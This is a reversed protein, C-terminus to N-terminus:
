EILPVIGNAGALWAGDIVLAETYNATAGFEPWGDGDLDGIMAFATGFGDFAGSADNPGDTGELILRVDSLDLADLDVYGDCDQDLGDNPIEDAEPHITSDEDNCDTSEPFSDQDVDPDDPNTASTDGSDPPEASDASDNPSASDHPAVVPSDQRPIGVNVPPPNPCGLLLALM